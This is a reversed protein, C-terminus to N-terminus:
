NNERSGGGNQKLKSVAEVGFLLRSDALFETGRRSMEGDVAKREQRARWAFSGLSGRWRRGSDLPDRGHMGPAGKTGEFGPVDRAM